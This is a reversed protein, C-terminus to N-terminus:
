IQLHYEHLVIGNEHKKLRYIGKNAHLLVLCHKRESIIIKWSEICTDVYLEGNYLKVSINNKSCIDQIEKKEKKYQRAM